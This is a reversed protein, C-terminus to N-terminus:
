WMCLESIGMKWLHKHKSTSGQEKENKKKCTYQIFKGGQILQINKATPREGADRALSTFDALMRITSPSSLERCCTFSASTPTAQVCCIASVINSMGHAVCHVHGSSREARWHTAAQV